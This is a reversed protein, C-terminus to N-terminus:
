FLEVIDKFSTIRFQAFYNIDPVEKDQKHINLGNDILCITTWNLKNATVFDKCINDGIYYYSADGFKNEFHKYNELSPKESGFEESILIESFFSSINLAELKNRQQVSRGDTMLGIPINIHKLYRFLELRDQTLVLNPKHNRYLVLLDNVDLPISYKSIIKKFPNAKSYYFYLLDKYIIKKEIIILKSIKDSIESYASKLYDIENYLTDDLDFVVVKNTKM